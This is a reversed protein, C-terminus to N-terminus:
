IVLVHEWVALVQWSRHFPGGRTERVIFNDIGAAAASLGDGADRAERESEATISPHHHICLDLAGQVLQWMRMPAM